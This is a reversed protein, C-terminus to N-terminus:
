NLTFEITRKKLVFEVTRRSLSFTITTIRSSSDFNNVVDIGSGTEVLALLSNLLLVEAGNGVEAISVSVTASITDSGTATELVKKIISSTASVSDIGNTSESLSLFVSLVAQDVGQGNEPISYQASINSIIDSGIGSEAVIKLIGTLLSLNDQGTGSDTISVSVALALGESGLGNDVITILPSINLSESGAGSESIAHLSSLILADSGSGIDSTDVSANLPQFGDNGTGSEAISQNVAIDLADAGFGAEAITKLTGGSAVPIFIKRPQLLQYPNTSISKIELPSLERNYIYLYYGKENLGFSNTLWFYDGINSPTDTDTASGIELGADYIRKIGGGFTFAFNHYGLSVNVAIRNTTDIIDFYLNNDSWWYVQLGSMPSFLSSDSVINKDLGMLITFESNNLDPIKGLNIGDGTLFTLGDIFYGNENLGWNKPRNPIIAKAKGNADYLSLGSGENVVLAKILGNSLPNSRDVLTFQEPKSDWQKKLPFM